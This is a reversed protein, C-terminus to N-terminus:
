GEGDSAIAAVLALDSERVSGTDFKRAAAAM